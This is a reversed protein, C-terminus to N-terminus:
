QNALLRFNAARQGTLPHQGEQKTSWPAHPSGPGLNVLRQGSTYCPPPLGHGAIVSSGFFGGRDIQWIEGRESLNVVRGHSIQQWLENIKIENIAHYV